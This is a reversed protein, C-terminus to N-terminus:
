AVNHPLLTEDMLCVLDSLDFTLDVNGIVGIEDLIRQDEATTAYRYALISQVPLEVLQPNRGIAERQNPETYVINDGVSANKNPDGDRLNARFRDDLTMTGFDHAALCAITGDAPNKEWIVCVAAFSGDATITYVQICLVLRVSPNLFYM